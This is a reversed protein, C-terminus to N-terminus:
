KHTILIISKGKEKLNELANLLNSIEQPTLVATPEDFILIDAGLYLVKLIEIRQQMAVPLDKIVADPDVPLGYEEGLSKVLKRAEYLDLLGSKKCVPKGLIINQTVTLSPVLTFHQHVMGIGLAIADKPSSINAKNGNVYIEGEDPIYMGYLIKMLTTKGAGNEGILGHISGWSVSLNVNDNAIVKPFKKTIGKMEIAFPM